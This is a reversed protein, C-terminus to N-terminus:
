LYLPRPRTYGAVTQNPLKISNPGDQFGLAITDLGYDLYFDYGLNAEFGVGNGGNLTYQGKSFWSSSTDNNFTLGRSNVCDDPVGRPNAEIECGGPQVVGTIPSNTSVFVRVSQEPNGIRAIITSWEGDDGDSSATLQPRM